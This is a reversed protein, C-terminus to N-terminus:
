AKGLLVSFVTCILLIRPFNQIDNATETTVLFGLDANLFTCIRRYSVAVGVQLDSHRLQGNLKLSMGSLSEDESQWTM